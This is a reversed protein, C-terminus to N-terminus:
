GVLRTDWASDSRRSGVIPPQKRRPSTVGAPTKRPPARTVVALVVGQFGLDQDVCSGTSVLDVLSKDHAQGERTDRLFCIHCTEDIVLLTNIMHYKKKGRDYVQPEEPDRPRHSPRAPGDQWFPPLHPGGENTPDCPPRSVRRGPPRAALGPTRAGSELCDPPSADVEQCESPVDRLTARASGAHSATESRDAHLAM